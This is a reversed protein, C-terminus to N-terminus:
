FHASVRIRQDALTWIRSAHDNSTAMLMTSTMDFDISNVGANSGILTGRLELVGKGVDWFKVKRDAGGTAVVRDNPCWRVASVEGDHADFQMHVTSPLNCSYFPAGKMSVDSMSGMPSGSSTPDTAADELDRRMKDTRRRQNLENEENLKDLVRKEYHILKELLKQNDDQAKRLKEELATCHLHLATHEDRLTNNLAKLEVENTRFMRIEANLSNITATHDNARQEKELLQHSLGALRMNLDVIMQSNEGKRKHLDTLEEQQALLKKELAQVEASNSSSSSGVGRNESPTAKSNESSM